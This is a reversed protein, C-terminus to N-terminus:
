ILKFGSFSSHNYLLSCDTTAKIWAIDNRNMHFTALNGGVENGIVEVGNKMIASSCHHTSNTSIVSWHFVYYGDSPCTFVGTNSNYGGGIDIKEVEFKITSQTAVPNKIMSTWVVTPLFRPTALFLVADKIEPFIKLKIKFGM